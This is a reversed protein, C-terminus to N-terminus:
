EPSRQKLKLSIVPRRPPEKFKGDERLTNLAREASGRLTEDNEPTIKLIEEAFKQIICAIIAKSQETKVYERYFKMATNLEQSANQGDLEFKSVERLGHVALQNFIGNYGRQSTYPASSDVMRMYVRLRLWKDAEKARAEINNFIDVINFEDKKVRSAIESFQDVLKFQSPVIGNEHLSGRLRYFVLDEPTDKHKAILPFEGTFQHLYFHPRTELTTPM